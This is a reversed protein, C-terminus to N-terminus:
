RGVLHAEQGEQPQDYCIVDAWTNYCYSDPYVYKGSADQEAGGGAEPYIESAMRQRFTHSDSKFGRIAGDYTDQCAPLLLLAAILLKKM